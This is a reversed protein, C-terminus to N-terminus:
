SVATLERLPATVSARSQESMPQLVVEYGLAAAMDAIM